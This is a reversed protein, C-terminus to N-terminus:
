RDIESKKYRNTEKEREIETKLYVNREKKKPKIM